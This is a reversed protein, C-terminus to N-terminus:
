VMITNGPSWAPRNLWGSKRLRRNYSAFPPLSPRPAPEPRMPPSLSWPPFLCPLSRAPPRDCAGEATTSPCAPVTGIPSFCAPWVALPRDETSIATGLTWLSAPYAGLDSAGTFKGHGDNIWIGVPAASWADTLVLDLDGDDNVDRPVVQVEGAQRTIRICTPTTGSSLHLDVSYSIGLQGRATRRVLIWDPRGDGDLDALVGQQDWSNPLTAPGTNSLPNAPLLNAPWALFCLLCFLTRALCGPGPRLNALNALCFESVPLPARAPLRKLM